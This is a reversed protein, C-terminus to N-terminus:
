NVFDVPDASEFGERVEFHLFPPTSDRVEAITQGRTVRDGKSVTVNQINAYVTLLNNAHRVVLIPVQDTDRTIAAVTGDEAAKVKTGAAAAIAIGENRDRICMESGM